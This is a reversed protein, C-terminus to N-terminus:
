KDRLYLSNLCYVCFYRDLIISKNCVSPFLVCQAWRGGKVDALNFSNEVISCLSCAYDVCLRKNGL